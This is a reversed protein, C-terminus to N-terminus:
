GGLGPSIGKSATRVECTNHMYVLLQLPFPDLKRHRIQVSQRGYVCWLPYAELQCKRPLGIASCALWQWWGEAAENSNNLKDDHKRLAQPCKKKM